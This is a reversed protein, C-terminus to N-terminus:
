LVDWLVSAKHLGINKAVFGIHISEVEGLSLFGDDRIKSLPKLKNNLM